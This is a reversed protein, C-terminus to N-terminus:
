GGPEAVQVLAFMGSSRYALVPPNSSRGRNRCVMLMISYILPVSTWQCTVCRDSLDSGLSHFFIFYNRLRLNKFKIQDSPLIWIISFSKGLKRM